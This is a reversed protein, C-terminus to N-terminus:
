LSIGYKERVSRLLEDVCKFDKRVSGYVEADDIIWYRHVLLNRLRTIKILDKACDFVAKAELMRFCEAYSRPEQSFDETALHICIGGLAEALVIVHYRISYKEDMTLASYSKSTLRRLESVAESIESIRGKLYNVDVSLDVMVSAIVYVLM